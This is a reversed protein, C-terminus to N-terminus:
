PASRHSPARRDPKAPCPSRRTPGARDEIRSQSRDLEDTNAEAAAPIRSGGPWGSSTQSALGVRSSKERDEVQRRGVGPNGRSRGIGDRSGHTRRSGPVSDRRDPGPRRALSAICAALEALYGFVRRSQCRASRRFIVAALAEILAFTRARHSRALQSAAALLGSRSVSPRCVRAQSGLARSARCPDPRTLEGRERREVARM